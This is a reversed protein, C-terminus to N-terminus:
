AKTIDPTCLGSPRVSLCSVHSVTSSSILHAWSLGEGRLKGLQVAPPLHTVDLCLPHSVPFGRQPRSHSHLCLRGLSHAPCSFSISPVTLWALPKGPPKETGNQIRDLGRSRRRTAGEGQGARDQTHSKAGPPQVWGGSWTGPDGPPHGRGRRDRSCRSRSPPVPRHSAAHVRVRSLRCCSPRGVLLLLLLLGAGMDLACLGVRDSVSGVCM